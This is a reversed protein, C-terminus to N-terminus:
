RLKLREAITLSDMILGALHLGLHKRSQSAVCCIKLFIWSKGLM